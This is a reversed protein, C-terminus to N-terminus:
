LMDFMGSKKKKGKKQTGFMNGMGFDDSGGSSKFSGFINESQSSSGLGIGSGFMTQERPAYAIRRVMHKKSKKNSSQAKFRPQISSVVKHFKAGKERIKEIGAGVKKGTEYVKSIGSKTAQYAKSSAQKAKSYVGSVKEKFAAYKESREKKRREKNLDKLEVYEANNDEEIINDMSEPM